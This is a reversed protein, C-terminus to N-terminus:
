YPTSVEQPESKAPSAEDMLTVLDADAKRDIDTVWGVSGAFRGAKVRVYDGLRFHLCLDSIHADIVVTPTSDALLECIDNTITLVRGTLGSQEGSVVRVRCDPTLAKSSLYSWAKAVVSTGLGQSRDFVDLEVATPTALRLRHNDFTVEVLGGRYTLRKFVVGGDELQQFTLGSFRPDFIHPNPRCPRSRNGKRPKEGGTSLRPVLLVAAENAAQDVTTVYGLDGRYLSAGSVRVWKGAKSITHCSLLAPRDGLPVFDVRPTRPVGNLGQIATSVAGLDRAEIYVSGPIFNSVEFAALIRPGSAQSSNDEVGLCAQVIHREQGVQTSLM